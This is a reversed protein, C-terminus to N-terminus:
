SPKAGADRPGFSALVNQIVRDFFAFVPEVALGVFFAVAALTLSFGALSVPQGASFVVGVLGGLLMAMLVRLLAQQGDRVDLAFDAIKGSFRRLVYTCGGLFGMFLPLILATILYVTGATRIETRAWHRNSVWGAEDPNSPNAVTSLVVQQASVAPGIPRSPPPPLLYTDKLAVARAEDCGRMLGITSLGFRSLHHWLCNIDSLRLFIIDERLRAEFLQSCLQFARAGEPANAPFRRRISADSPESIEREIDAPERPCFDRFFGKTLGTDLGDRAGVAPTDAWAGPPMTQLAERAVRIEERAQVLQQMTQRGAEAVGFLFLTSILVLLCVSRIGIVWRRLSRGENFHDHGEDHRALFANTLRITRATAPMAAGSLDDVLRVLRSFKAADGIIDSVPASLVGVDFEIGGVSGTAPRGGELLDRVPRDGRGALYGILVRADGQLQRVTRAVDEQAEAEGM